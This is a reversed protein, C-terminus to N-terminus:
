RARIGPRCVPSIMRARIMKEWAGGDGRRGISPDPEVLGGGGHALGVGCWKGIPFIGPPGPASAGFYFKTASGRIALIQNKCNHKDLNDAQPMGTCHIGEMLAPNIRAGNTCAGAM